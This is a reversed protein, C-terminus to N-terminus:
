RTLPSYLLPSNGHIPAPQNWNDDQQNPDDIVNQAAVFLVTRGVPRGAVRPLLFAPGGPSRGALDIAKQIFHIAAPALRGLPRL